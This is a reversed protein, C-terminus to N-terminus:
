KNVNKLFLSGAAAPFFRFAEYIYIVGGKGFRCYGQRKKILALLFRVFKRKERKM